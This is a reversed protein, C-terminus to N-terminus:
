EIVPIGSTFVELPIRKNEEKIFTFLGTEYIVDKFAIKINQRARHRSVSPICLIKGNIVFFTCFLDIKSGDSYFIDASDYIPIWFDKICFEKFEPSDIHIPDFDIM